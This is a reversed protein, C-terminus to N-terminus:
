LLGKAKVELYRRVAALALSRADVEATLAGQARLLRLTRDREERVERAAALTFADGARRPVIEALLDLEPDSVTLVVPLHRRALGQLGEVLPKAQEAELIETLLLILTRRRLRARLHELAAPYDPETTDPELTRLAETVRLLQRRGKDPPLWARVGGSFALLGVRDGGELAVRSVLLAARAVHDMKTLDGIRARMIRGADVLVVVRQDREAQYQRVIFRGRRATAKWDIRRYEDDRRYERLSEFERGEGHLLAQRIGVSEQRASRLSLAEEPDRPRVDPYIRMLTPIARVAQRWVLGLPSRYRFALPGFTHDGRALPVVRYRLTVESRPPLAVEGANGDCRFPLPPLDRYRAVLRRRTPNTLALSVETERDLPAAERADRSVVLAGPRPLALWDALLLALLAVNWAAVVPLLGPEVLTLGLLLFGAAALLLLRDSIVM